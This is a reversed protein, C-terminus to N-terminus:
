NTWTKQIFWWWWHRQSYCYYPLVIQRGRFEVADGWCWWLTKWIDHLTSDDNPAMLIFTATYTVVVLNLLTCLAFTPQCFHFHFVVIVFHFHLEVWNNCFFFFFVLFGHLLRTCTPCSSFINHWCNQLLGLLHTVIMMVMVMMGQASCLSVTITYWIVDGTGTQTDYDGVSEM